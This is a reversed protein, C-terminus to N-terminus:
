EPEPVERLIRLLAPIEETVTKWVIDREIVFYAHILRNRMQSSKSGPFLPGSVKSAVEGIIEAARVLAFLLMEDTDLDARQRNAIFRQAAEAAEIMHRIRVRDDPRM